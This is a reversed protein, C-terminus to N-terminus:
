GKLQAEILARALKPVSNAPGQGCEFSLSSIYGGEILLHLADALLAPDRAKMEKCLALLRQRMQAKNEVVVQFGPDKEDLEVIANAMPCGHSGEVKCKGESFADMLAILQAKPNGAHPAIVGEWWEWFERDHGRLCEAVLQDKSDFSRYLSMKTAGAEAAISEVGVARIGYRYFLDKAANFIRERAPRRALASTEPSTSSM